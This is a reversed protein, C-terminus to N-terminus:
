TNASRSIEFWLEHSASYILEITYGDYLLFNGTLRTGMATDNVLMIDGGSGSGLEHTFLLTLRQGDPYVTPDTDIGMFQGPVANSINVVMFSIDQPALIIDGGDDVNYSSSEVAFGGSGVHFTVLPSVTGLAINSSAYLEGTSASYTQSGLSLGGNVSVKSAPSSYGIGVSNSSDVLHVASGTVDWLHRDVRFDTAHLNYTNVGTNLGVANGGSSTATSINGGSLCNSVITNEQGGSITVSTDGNVVSNGLIVTYNFKGRIEGGEDITNLVISSNSVTKDNSISDILYAIRKIKCLSIDVQYVDEVIEVFSQVIVDGVLEGVARVNQISVNSAGVRFFSTITEDAYVLSDGSCEILLNDREVYIPQTLTINEAIVIRNVLDDALASILEEESRVFRTAREQSLDASDFRRHFFPDFM